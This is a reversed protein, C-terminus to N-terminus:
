NQTSKVMRKLSTHEEVIAILRLNVLFTHIVVACSKPFNWIIRNPVKQSM